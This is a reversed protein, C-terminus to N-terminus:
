CPFWFCCWYFLLTKRSSETPQCRLSVYVGVTGGAHEPFVNCMWVFRHVAYTRACISINSLLLLTAPQFWATFPIIWPSMPIPMTTYRFSDKSYSLTSTRCSQSVRTSLSSQNPELDALSIRLPHRFHGLSHQNPFHPFHGWNPFHSFCM